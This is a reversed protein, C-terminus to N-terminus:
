ATEWDELKVVDHWNCYTARCKIEPEVLGDKLITHNEPVVDILGHCKPCCIFTVEGGPTKWKWWHGPVGLGSMFSQSSKKIPQPLPM